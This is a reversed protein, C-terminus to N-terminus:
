AGCGSDGCASWDQRAAVQQRGKQAHHRLEAEALRVGGRNREAVEREGPDQPRHVTRGHPAAEIEDRRRCNNIPVIGVCRNYSPSRSSIAREILRIILNRRTSFCQPTSLVAGRWKPGCHEAASNNSVEHLPSCVQEARPCLRGSDYAPSRACKTFGWTM